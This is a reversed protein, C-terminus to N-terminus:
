FSAARSSLLSLDAAEVLAGPEMGEVLEATGFRILLPEGDPRTAGTSVHIRLRESVRAAGEAPTGPFLLAFEDGGWRFCRDPKRLADSLTHAVKRLCEDGELHGWDDNIRKFDEIDGMAMSLPVKMRRVRAIENEIAEEFARRNGIGTLGDVRAEERAEEAGRRMRLRQARVRSMLMHTIGAVACWILFAALSGAAADSNWGGYVFPAALGAAVAAMYGIIERPSYISAIYIVTLLLVREYPAGVGGALWQMVGLSVIVLFSCAYLRSFTWPLRESRFAFWAGVGAVGLAGAVIWGTGGIAENPPSLPTLLVAIALGMAWLTSGIRLAAPLDEESYAEQTAFLRRLRKM